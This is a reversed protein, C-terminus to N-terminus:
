QPPSKNAGIQSGREANRLLDGEGANIAATKERQDAQWYDLPKKLYDLVTDSADQAIEAIKADDLDHDMQLHTKVQEFTVIPM